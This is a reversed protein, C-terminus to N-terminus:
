GGGDSALALYRNGDLHLYVVKGNGIFDLQKSYIRKGTLIDIKNSVEYNPKEDDTLTVICGGNNYRYGGFSVRNPYSFVNWTGYIMRNALSISLNIIILVTLVTVIIKRSKKM